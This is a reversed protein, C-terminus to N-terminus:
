FLGLVADDISGQFDLWAVRGICLPCLPCPLLLCQSSASKRDLAVACRWAVCKKLDKDDGMKLVAKAPVSVVVKGDAVAAVVEEGEQTTDPVVCRVADPAPLRWVFVGARKVLSVAQM